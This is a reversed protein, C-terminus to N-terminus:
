NRHMWVDKLAHAMLRCGFFSLLCGSGVDIWRKAGQYARRARQRSFLCVVVLNWSLSIVGVVAVAAVQIWSPLEPSFLAAFASSFFALSKPNTMNTWFGLRWGEWLGGPLSAGAAVAATGGGRLMKLGLYLLYAGGALQLWRNLEGYGAIVMGLGAAALGAWVVSATSVGASVAIAYSSSRSAAARTIIVFNPGPSAALVFYLSAVSGLFALEIM